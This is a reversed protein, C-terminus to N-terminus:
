RAEIRVEDDGAEIEWVVTYGRLKLKDLCKGLVAGYNAVIVDKISQNPARLYIVQASSDLAKLEIKAFWKELTEEGLIKGLLETLKFWVDQPSLKNPTRSQFKVVEGPQDMDMPLARQMPEERESSLWYLFRGKTPQTGEQACRFALKTRVLEVLPPPYLRAQIIADCFADDVPENKFDNPSAPQAAAEPESRPTLDKYPSTPPTSGLESNESTSTRFKGFNASGLNPIKRLQLESNESTRAEFEHVKLPPFEGVLLTV